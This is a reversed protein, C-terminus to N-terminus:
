VGRVNNRADRIFGMEQKFYEMYKVLEQPEGNHIDTVLKVMEEHKLIFIIHKPDTADRKVVKAGMCRLMATKYPDTTSYHYKDSFNYETKGKM